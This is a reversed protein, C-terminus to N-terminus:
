ITDCDIVIKKIKLIKLVNLKTPIGVQRDAQLMKFSNNKSMKINVYQFVFALLIM